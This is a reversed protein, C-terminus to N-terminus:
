NTEEYARWIERARAVFDGENFGGTLQMLTAAAALVGDVVDGPHQGLVLPKIATIIDQPDVM